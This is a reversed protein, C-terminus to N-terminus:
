RPKRRFSVEDGHLEYIVDEGYESLAAVIQDFRSLKHFPIAIEGHDVKELTEYNEQIARIPVEATEGARLNRLIMEEIQYNGDAAESTDFIVRAM